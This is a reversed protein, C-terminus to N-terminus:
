GCSSPWPSFAGAPPAVALFAVVSVAATVVGRVAALATTSAPLSRSVLLGLGVAVGLPCLLVVLRVAMAAVPHGYWQTSTRQGGLDTSNESM